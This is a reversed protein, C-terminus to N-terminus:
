HSKPNKSASKQQKGENENEKMKTKVIEDIIGMEESSLEEQAVTETCFLVLNVAAAAIVIIKFYWKM